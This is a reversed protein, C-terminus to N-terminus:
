STSVPSSAYLGTIRVVSRGGFSSHANRKLSSVITVVGPCRKQREPLPHTLDRSRSDCDRSCVTVPFVGTQFALFPSVASVYLRTTASKWVYKTPLDPRRQWSTRGGRPVSLTTGPIDRAWAAAEAFLDVERPWYHSM